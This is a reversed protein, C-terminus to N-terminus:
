WTLRMKRYSIHFSFNLFLFRESLIGLQESHLSVEAMRLYSLLVEWLQTNVDDLLFQFGLSSIKMNDIRMDSIGVLFGAM